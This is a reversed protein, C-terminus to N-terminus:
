AEAEKLRVALWARAMRWDAEITSRSVGLVAAVDDVPLGAFFRLEVVQAQRENLTQLHTLADDLAVVDVPSQAPSEPPDYLTVRDANKGRKEASRARAHDVLIRRMAQAAISLFHNRSECDGPHDALKIWAEHVLATPQLTHDRRENRLCAFAIRRLESYVLPMLRSRATPDGRQLESLIQTVRDKPTDVM